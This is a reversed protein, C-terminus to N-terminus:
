SHGDWPGVRIYVDQPDPKHLSDGNSGVPIPVRALEKGEFFAQLVFDADSRVEMGTLPMIVTTRNDAGGSRFGISTEIGPEGNTPQISIEITGQSVQESFGSLMLVFAGGAHVFGDPHVYQTSYGDILRFLSRAGSSEEIVEECLAAVRVFPGDAYEM